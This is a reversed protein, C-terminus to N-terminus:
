RSATSPDARNPSGLNRGKRHGALVEYAVGLLRRSPSARWLAARWLINAVRGSVLPWAGPSGIRYRDTLSWLLRVEWSRLKAAGRLRELTDAPACPLGERELYGLPVFLARAVDPAEAYSELTEWDVHDGDAEITRSLDVLNQTRRGISDGHTVHVCINLVEHTPDLVLARGPFVRSPRTAQLFTAPTPFGELRHSPRIVAHHIELCVNSSPHFLPPGHHHGAYSERPPGTPDETFGAEGAATRAESIRDDAVLLDIDRMPRTHPPSYREGALAMGKLLIPMIGRREFATFLEAIAERIAEWRFAHYLSQGELSALLEPAPPLEPALRCLLQLFIPEQSVRQALAAAQEPAGPAALGNRAAELTEAPPDIWASALLLRRM